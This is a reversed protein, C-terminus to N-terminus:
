LRASLIVVSTAKHLIIIDSFLNLYHFHSTIHIQVFDTVASLIDKVFLCTFIRSLPVASISHYKDTLISMLCILNRHLIFAFVGFSLSLLFDSVYRSVTYTNITILIIASRQSHYTSNLIKLEDTVVMPLNEVRRMRYITETNVPYARHVFRLALTESSRYQL